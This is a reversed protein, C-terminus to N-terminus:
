AAVRKSPRAATTPLCGAYLTVGSEVTAALSEWRAASAETVDLALASAGSGRLLPIPAAPHCCHIVVPGAHAAVVTRLGQAVVQPDVARIAGYGSATPLLGQLVAPLAPEDLQVIVDAGPVLRAVTAAYRSVGEALSAILDRTAGPISSPGNAGPSNSPPPWPGPAPQRSRSRAPTATTRRPSNTSIRAISPRLGRPM